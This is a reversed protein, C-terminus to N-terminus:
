VEKYTGDPYIVVNANQDLRSQHRHSRNFDERRPHRSNLGNIDSSLKQYDVKNNLLNDWRKDKTYQLQSELMAQIKHRFSRTSKRLDTTEVTLQNAKHISNRVIQQARQKAKNILANAQQHAKQSILKSHNKSNAKVKDAAEQAVLISQNLSDKLNNFYKVESQAEKLSKNLEGNERLTIQYDKVIQDLFDNVQDINYGRMKVSFEKNHIDQPSLVM